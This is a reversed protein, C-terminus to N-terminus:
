AAAGMFSGLISPVVGEGGGGSWWVWVAWKKGGQRVGVETVPLQPGGPSPLRSMLPILMLLPSVWPVVSGHNRSFLRNAPPHARARFIGGGGEQLGVVHVGGRIGGGGPRPRALRAAMYEVAEDRNPSGTPSPPAPAAFPPTLHGVPPPRTLPALFHSDPNCEHNPPPGLPLTLIKHSSSPPPGSRGMRPPSYDWVGRGEARRGTRSFFGPPPM